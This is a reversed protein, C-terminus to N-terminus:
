SLQLIQIDSIKRFKNSFVSHNEHKNKIIEHELNLMIKQISNKLAAIRVQSAIASAPNVLHVVPEARRPFAQGRRNVPEKEPRLTARTAIKGAM